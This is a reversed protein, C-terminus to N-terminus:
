EADGNANPRVGTAIVPHETPAGFRARARKADAAIRWRGWKDLELGAAPFEDPDLCRRGDDRFPDLRLGEAFTYAHRGVRHRDFAGVSAFDLACSACANM